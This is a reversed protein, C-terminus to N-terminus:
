RSGSRWAPKRVRSGRIFSRLFYPRLRARLAGCYVFRQGTPRGAVPRGSRKPLPLPHGLREELAVLLREAGAVHGDQVATELLGGRRIPRRDGDRGIARHRPGGEAPDQEPHAVGGGRQLGVVPREAEDGVVLGGQEAAGLREDDEPPGGLRGGVYSRSAATASAAASRVSAARRATAISGVSSRRLRCAVSAPSGPPAAPAAGSGPVGGDAVPGTGSGSTGGAVSGAAGETASASSCITVATSAAARPSWAAAAAAAARLRAPEGPPRAAADGRHVGAEEPDRRARGVDVEVEEEGVERGTRPRRRHRRHGYWCRRRSASSSPSAAAASRTRSAM